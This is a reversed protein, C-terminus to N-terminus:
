PRVEGASAHVFGHDAFRASSFAASAFVVPALDVARVFGASPRSSFTPRSGPSARRAAEGAAVSQTPSQQIKVRGPYPHAGVFGADKEEPLGRRWAPDRRPFCRFFGDSWRGIM